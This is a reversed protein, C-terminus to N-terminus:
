PAGCLSLKKSTNKKRKDSKNLDTSPNMENPDIKINNNYKKITEGNEIYEIPKKRWKGKGHKM